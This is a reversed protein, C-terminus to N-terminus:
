EKSYGENEIAEFLKSASFNSLEVDESVMRDVLRKLKQKKFEEFSSEFHPDVSFMRKLQGIMIEVDALEECAGELGYNPVDDRLIKTLEKTLEAMEEIALLVQCTEGFTKAATDFIYNMLKNM